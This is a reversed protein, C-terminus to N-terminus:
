SHLREQWNDIWEKGKDKWQKGKDVIKDYRESFQLKKESYVDGASGAGTSYPIDDHAVFDIPVSSTFKPMAGLSPDSDLGRKKSSSMKVPQPM